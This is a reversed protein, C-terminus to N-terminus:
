MGGRPDYVKGCRKCYMQAYHWFGGVGAAIEEPTPDIGEEAKCTWEHGPIWNCLFWNILTKM